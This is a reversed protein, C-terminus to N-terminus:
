SGSMVLAVFQFIDLQNINGDGNVDSIQSGCSETENSSIIDSLTLLDFIDIEYSQDTDVEGNINGYVWVNANDCIDCADGFLDNDINEQNPNYVLPCNDEAGSLGDEDFDHAELTNINERQAQYIKNDGSNQVIAVIKIQDSNWQDQLSFSGAYEQLENEENINLPYVDWIRVVNRAYGTTDSFNGEISYSWDAMISDEVVFIHAYQNVILTDLELSITVVYNVNASDLEGNILINYPTENNIQNLVSNTYIQYSDSPVPEVGVVADTGNFVETPIGTVTYLDPRIDYCNSSNNYICESPDFTDSEAQWQLSILNEPYEDLLDSILLSGTGCYPCWNTATFDEVIVLQNSRVASDLLERINKHELDSAQSFQIFFFLLTLLTILKQM